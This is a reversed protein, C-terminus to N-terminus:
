DLELHVEFAPSLDFGENRECRAIKEPGIGSYGSSGATLGRQFAARNGVMAEVRDHDGTTSRLQEIV